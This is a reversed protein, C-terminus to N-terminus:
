GLESIVEISEIFFENGNIVTVKSSSCLPCLYNDPTPHFHNACQNCLMETPIRKFHLRAGEAKTGSSLINWYFQISDDLFSSLEGIVLFIDTITQGKSHQLTIDIINQTVSLEHM